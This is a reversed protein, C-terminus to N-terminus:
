SGIRSLSFDPHLDLFVINDTTLHHVYALNHTAQPVHLVNNLFIRRTPTLVTSQGIHNIMMGVGMLWTCRIRDVM